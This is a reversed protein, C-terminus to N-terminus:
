RSDLSPGLAVCRYMNFKSRQRAVNLRVHFIGLPFCFTEIDSVRRELILDAPRLEVAEYARALEANLCIRM